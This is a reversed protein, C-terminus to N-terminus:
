KKTTVTKVTSWKSYYRKGSMTEKYSRIRVYYKKKASLKTVKKSTQSTSQILVNKVSTFKSSTSYQLHYGSAQTNGKQTSLKTWKATFSKSGATLSKFKTAQPIITFSTSLAGEYQSGHFEVRVKYSGVVKRGAAYSVTYNSASITKGAADTVKVTPKKAIGNYTYSTSSLTIKKPRPITTTKEAYCRDCMYSIRGTINADAKIRYSEKYDHGLAPITVSSGSKVANCVSCHISKQGAQTCTAKKDVTYTSKWSHGKKPIAIQYIDMCKSCRYEKYGAETCSAEEGGLPNDTTHTHKVVTTYVPRSAGSDVFACVYIFYTQGATMKSGNTTFATSFSSSCSGVDVLKETSDIVWAFDDRVANEVKVEYYGTTSPTFKYYREFDSDTFTYAKQVNLSLAEATQASNSSITTRSKVASVGTPMAALASTGQLALAATLLLALIRKQKM